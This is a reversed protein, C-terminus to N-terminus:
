PTLMGEDLSFRHSIIETAEPKRVEKKDITYAFSRDSCRLNVVLGRKQGFEVPDPYINRRIAFLITTAVKGLPLKHLQTL